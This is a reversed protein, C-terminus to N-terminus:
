TGNVCDSRVPASVNHFSGIYCEGARRTANKGIQMLYEGSPNSISIVNFANEM